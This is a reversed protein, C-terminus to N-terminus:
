RGRGSGIAKNIRGAPPLEAKEEGKEEKGVIQQEKQQQRKQKNGVGNAALAIQYAEVSEQRQFGVFGAGSSLPPSHRSM